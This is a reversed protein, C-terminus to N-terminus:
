VVGAPFPQPPKSVVASAADAADKSVADKVKILATKGVVNIEEHLDALVDSVVAEAGLAIAGADASRCGM